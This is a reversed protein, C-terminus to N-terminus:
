KVCVLSVTFLYREIYLELMADRAVFGTFIVLVNYIFMGFQVASDLLLM